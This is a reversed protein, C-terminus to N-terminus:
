DGRPLTFIFKAGRGKESEVWIRGGHAEIIAKCLYLGLGVGQTRPSSIGEARYFREFILEHEEEPIGVGEDSVYVYVEDGDAWGGVRIEGGDPSYKIANSLLNSFVQRIREPDGMAPPLGKPFDLEFRHKSTQTRFSEVMKEAIEEVKVSSIELKLAGAQLRSADLLNDILRNLRESEEGIIALGERITEEDWRADERRLTDAYGKILSVPTKLEHSIISIFTSKMEEEERFRSIDRVNAIVSALNGEEDYLLSYTIGVATTKDGLKIDGEVYLREERRDELLPCRARCLKKGERDRLDLVQYCPRGLAENPPWGTLRSLAKNFLLIKRRQDLIMIGDASNEIIEALLRRGRVAQEYLRANHVAIAAQDAFSSLVKKDNASFGGRGSRFVYILGILEGQMILPLAVVQHLPLGAAASVFGLRMRLNPIAWGMEEAFPPINKMLPSFLHLTKQPLGYSVQVRFSGDEQKLAIIGAHGGLMEVASSIILRLVSPLDLRSTMARSIKL